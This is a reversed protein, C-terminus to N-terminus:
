KIIIGQKLLGQIQSDIISNISKNLIVNKVKTFGNYDKLTGHENTPYSILNDVPKYYNVKIYAQKLDNQLTNKLDGNVRNDYINFLELNQAISTQFSDVVSDDSKIVVTTTGNLLSLNYTINIKKGIIDSSSIKVTPIWPLMISIDKISYDFGNKAPVTIDGVNLTYEQKNIKYAPTDVTKYGAIIQSTTTLYSTPIAFPIKYLQNIFSQFDYTTDHGQEYIAYNQKAIEQLTDDDVEYLRIIADGTSPKPPTFDKAIDGRIELNLGSTDTFTATKKDATIIPTTIDQSRGMGGPLWADVHLSNIHYGQDAKLTWQNVGNFDITTHDLPKIPLGTYKVPVALKKTEYSVHLEMSDDINNANVTLTAVHNDIKFSTENQHEESFDNSDIMYFTANIVEYGANPSITITNNKVSVTANQKTDDIVGISAISKIFEYHVNLNADPDDLFDSPVVITGVNNKITGQIRVLMGYDPLISATLTKLQLNDNPTVTITDGNIKYKVQNKRDSIRGTFTSSM